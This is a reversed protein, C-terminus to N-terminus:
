NIFGTSLSELVVGLEQTPEPMLVLYATAPTCALTFKYTYSGSHKLCILIDSCLPQRQGSPQNDGTFQQLVLEVRGLHPKTYTKHKSKDDPVEIM